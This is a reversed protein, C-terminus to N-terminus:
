IVGLRPTWSVPLLGFSSAVDVNIDALVTNQTYSKTVKQLSLTTM